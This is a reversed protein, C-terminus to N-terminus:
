TKCYWFIRGLKKGVGTAVPLTHKLFLSADCVCVCVCVCVCMWFLVNNLQYYICNLQYDSNVIPLLGDKKTRTNTIDGECATRFNYPPSILHLVEDRRNELLELNQTTSPGFFTYFTPCWLVPSAMSATLLSSILKFFVDFTNSTDLDVFIFNVALFSFYLFQAINSETPFWHHGIIKCFFKDSVTQHHLPFIKPWCCSTNFFHGKFKGYFITKGTWQWYSLSSCAPLPQTVKHAAM